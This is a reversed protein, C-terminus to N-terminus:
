ERKEENEGRMDRSLSAELGIASDTASSALLRLDGATDGWEYDRELGVKEAVHDCKATESLPPEM